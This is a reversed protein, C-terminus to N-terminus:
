FAVMVWGGNSRANNKAILLNTFTNNAL